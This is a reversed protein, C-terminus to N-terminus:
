TLPNLLQSVFKGVGCHTSGITDIIPRLPPIREFEKHIKASGHARGVKANKPYMMKYQSEDIQGTKRLMRIYNQLTSMRTHTPDNDVIRFQTRNSFLHEMSKEYDNRDM